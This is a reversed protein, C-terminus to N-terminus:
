QRTHSLGRKSEATWVKVEIEKYDLKKDSKQRLSSSSSSVSLTPTTAPTRGGNAKVSRTTLWAFFVRTGLQYQSLYLVFTRIDNALYQLSQGDRAHRLDFERSGGHFVREPM